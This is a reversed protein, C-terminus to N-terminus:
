GVRSKAKKNVDTFGLEKQRAEVWDPSRGMARAIQNRPTGSLSMAHIQEYERAAKTLDRVRDWMCAPLAQDLRFIAGQDGALTATLKLWPTM